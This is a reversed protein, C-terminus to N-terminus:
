LADALETSVETKKLIIQPESEIPKFQGRFCKFFSDIALKPTKREDRYLSWSYDDVIMIGGIKLLHFGIVMNSLVDAAMHSGSIHVFDFEELEGKVQDTLLLSLAYQSEGKMVVVKGDDIYSSLNSMFRDEPQLAYNTHIPEDEEKWTDICYLRSNPKNKILNEVIWKAFHGEYCGIEVCNVADADEISSLVSKWRTISRSFPDRAFYSSDITREMEHM